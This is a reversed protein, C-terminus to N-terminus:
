GTLNQRPWRKQFRAADEKIDRLDEESFFDVEAELNQGYKLVTLAATMPTAAKPLVDEGDFILANILSSKGSKVRGIIGLKLTRGDKQMGEIEAELESSKSISNDQKLLSVENGLDYKAIIAELEKTFKVINM